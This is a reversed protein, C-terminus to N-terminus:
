EGTSNLAGSMIRYKNETNWIKLIKDFNSNPDLLLEALVDLESLEEESLETNKDYIYSPIHLFIVEDNMLSHFDYFLARIAAKFGLRPPESAYLINEVSYKGKRLGIYAEAGFIFKERPIDLVNVNIETEAIIKDSDVLIWRNEVESYYETIWHDRAVVGGRMYTSFGSRVRASYGKAKLISTLLIAQARCTLHLKNEAKRDCTYNKDKRLLESVIAIATPFLDEEYSMRSVPIRTMDGWIMDKEKRIDDRKLVASHIIQTRQLICIEKIDDPLKQAFQKYYGLDTYLSTQKYFEMVKKNEKINKIDM